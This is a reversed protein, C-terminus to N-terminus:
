LPAPVRAREWYEFGEKPEGRIWGPLADAYEAFDQLWAASVRNSQVWIQGVALVDLDAVVALPDPLHPAAIWRALDPALRAFRSFEAGAADLPLPLPQPHGARSLPADLWSPRAEIPLRLIAATSGAQDAQAGQMPRAGLGASLPPLHQAPLMSSSASPLPLPCLELLALGPLLAFVLRGQPGLLRLRELGHCAVVALLLLGAATLASGDLASLRAWAPAGLSGLLWDLSRGLSGDGLAEWFGVSVRASAACLYLGAVLLLLLFLTGLPRWAARTMGLALFGALLLVWPWELATPPAQGPSAEYDPQRAFQGRRLPSLQPARLREMAGALAGRLVNTATPVNAGGPGTDAELAGIAAERVLELSPALQAAAQASVKAPGKPTNLDAQVARV